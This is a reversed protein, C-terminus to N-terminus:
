DKGPPLIRPLRCLVPASQWDPPPAVRPEFDTISASSLISTIRFDLYNKENRNKQRKADKVRIYSIAPAASATPRGPSTRMHRRRRPTPCSDRAIGYLQGADITGIM